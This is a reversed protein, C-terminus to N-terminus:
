RSDTWISNNRIGLYRVFLNSQKEWLLFMIGTGNNYGDYKFFLRLKTPKREKDMFSVWHLYIYRSIPFDRLQTPRIAYGITHMSYQTWWWFWIQSAQRQRTLIARCLSNSYTCIYRGINYNSSNQFNHQPLTEPSLKKRFYCLLIIHISMVYMCVDTRLYM